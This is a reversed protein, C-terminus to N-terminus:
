ANEPRAHWLEMFERPSKQVRGAADEVYGWSWFPQGRGAPVFLFGDMVPLAHGLYVGWTELM